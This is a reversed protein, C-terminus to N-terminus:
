CTWSRPSRVPGPRRGGRDRALSRLLGVIEGTPLEAQRIATDLVLRNFNGRARAFEVMSRGITTQPALTLHAAVDRVRWGPCLSPHEWDRPSLTELFDALRLRASEIESWVQETEM